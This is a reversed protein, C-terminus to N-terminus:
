AVLHDDSTQFLIEPLDGPPERLPVDLLDIDVPQRGFGRLQANGGEQIFVAAQPLLPQADFRAAGLRSRTQQDASQLLPKERGNLSERPGEPYVPLGDLFL